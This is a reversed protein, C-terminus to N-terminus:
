SGGAGHDRLQSVAAMVDRVPRDWGYLEHAAKPGRRSLRAYTEPEDILRRITSAFAKPTMDDAALGVGAETVQEVLGGVPTAAVPVGANMAYGVIGSQSAHDYPLAIIDCSAVISGIEHDEIWRNEVRADVEAMAATLDAELDGRGFIALEVALGEARLQSIAEVLRPLGKYDLLRGFFGVTTPTAARARPEPPHEPTGYAAHVTEFVRDPHPARQRLSTAVAGSYTMLGSYTRPRLWMILEMIKQEEGAHRTDDHASGLVPIGSMRLVLTPLHQLPSDMVAYVADVGHRRAFRRLMWAYWGNSVVRWIKGARDDAPGRPITHAPVDMRDLDDALESGAFYTLCLEVGEDLAARSFDVMMRPGAGKSGLHMVLLKTM